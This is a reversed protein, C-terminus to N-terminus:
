QKKPDLVYLSYNDISFLSVFDAMTSPTINSIIEPYRAIAEIDLQQTIANSFYRKWFTADRIQQNFNQLVNKKAEELLLSQVSNQKLKKFEEKICHLAYDVKAPECDFSVYVMYGVNKFKNSLHLHSKPSYSLGEKIRLVEVMRKKMQYQLIEAFFSVGDFMKTDGNFYIDVRSSQSEGNNMKYSFPEYTPRSAIYNDKDTNKEFPISGLYKQILHQISTSDPNGTIAFTWNGKNAFIDKYISLVREIDISDLDSTKLYSDYRTRLHKILINSRILDPNTESNIRNIDSVKQAKWVKLASTDVKPQVFSLYIVQFLEELRIASAEGSFMSYSDQVSSYFSIGEKGMYRIRNESTLPGIGSSTIISGSYIAATSDNNYKPFVNFKNFGEIFVRGNKDEARKIIVTIGNNLRIRTADISHLKQIELLASKNAELRTLQQEKMLPPFHEPKLTLKPKVTFPIIKEKAIQDLWNNLDAETPLFEKRTEPTVIVIDSNKDFSLKKIVENLEAVTIKNLLYRLYSAKVQPDSLPEGRLYNVLCINYSPDKGEEEILAAMRKKASDLEWNNFGIKKLRLIEYVMRHFVLKVSDKADDTGLMLQEMPENYGLVTSYKCGIFITGGQQLYNFRSSLLNEILKNKLDNKVDDYTKIPQYPFKFYIRCDVNNYNSASFGIYRSDHNVAFPPQFIESPKKLSGSINSFLGIVEKELENKNIKGVVILAVNDPTYWDNYFRQLSAPRFNKVSEDIEAGLRNGKPLRLVEETYRSRVATGTNSKRNKEQLIVGREPNIKDASLDINGNTWDKILLLCNKLLVTDASPIEFRYVTEMGSTSGNVNRGLSLGNSQLFPKVEPFNKTSKLALHELLHALEIQDKEEHMEGVKVLFYISIKDGLNDDQNLYYTFGNKLVNRELTPGAPITDTLKIPVAKQAILPNIFLVILFLLLSCAKMTGINEIFYFTM